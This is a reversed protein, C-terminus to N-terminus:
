LVPSIGVVVKNYLFAPTKDRITCIRSVGLSPLSTHGKIFRGPAGSGDVVIGRGTLPTVSGGGVGGQTSVPCNVLENLHPYACNIVGHDGSLFSPTPSKFWSTIEPSSVSELMM